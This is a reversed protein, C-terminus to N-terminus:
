YPVLRYSILTFPGNNNPALSSQQDYDFWANGGISASQVVMSGYWIGNGSQTLPALPANLIATVNGNGAVSISGSGSYTIVFDNPNSNDTIGNGAIGLPSSQGVGGINITVAGPPSVIIAGNGQMSISNINYIGPSLYLTGNVTINGYTGATMCNGSSHGHGCSPPSYSTNPPLPNPPPPTPFTYPTSLTTVGGTINGTPAPCGTQSSPPVGVTGNVTANQVVVGGNSGIDGQGTFPPYTGNYSNTGPNTGNFSIANCATGTAYLGYPFPPTPQLAMESQVVKRAGNQGIGMATILYVFTMPARSANFMQSCSTYGSGLPVEEQGDWCIPDQASFTSNVSYTQTTATSGSGNLYTVSGNLKPAIRVWAYPLAESTGHFPLASTASRYWTSGSPLIINNHSDVCRVDPPMVSLTSGYGLGSYADHCLEDDAYANTAVWPQAGIANNYIYVIGQNTPTPAATALSSFISSPDGPMSRARAEEMGAKAGFYATQENRYNANISSDTNSIFLMAAAIGTLLLLAFVALFLAVGREGSRNANKTTM